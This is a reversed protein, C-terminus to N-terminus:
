RRVRRRSAPQTLGICLMLLASLALVHRRTGATFGERREALYESSQLSTTHHPSCPIRVLDHDIFQGFAWLYNSWGRRSQATGDKLFQDSKGRLEEWGDIEFDFKNNECGCAFLLNGQKTFMPPPIRTQEFLAVTATPVADPGPSANPSGNAQPAAARATPPANGAAVNAADAADAAQAVEATDVVPPSPPSPPPLSGPTM